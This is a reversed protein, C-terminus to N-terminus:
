VVGSRGSAVARDLGTAVVDMVGGIAGAGVADRYVADGVRRWAKDVTFWAPDCPVLAYASEATIM